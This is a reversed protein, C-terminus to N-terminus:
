RQEREALRRALTEVSQRTAEFDFLELTLVGSFNDVVNMVQRWRAATLVALTQHDHGACEGHLHVVRTRPGYRRWHDTLDEGRLWLHGVDVCVSLGFADLLDECWAFPFFLNEVCLKAPTEVGAVIAPLLEALDQQWTKVRTADAQAAVGELHLIYNLPKLPRTWAIMKLIQRQLAQREAPAPNGLQRDIPFHVTYTLDHQEALRGLQVFIEPLPRTLPVASEFLVLEIDDAVPALAEVNPLVDAPYVCSTVGLRFRHPM